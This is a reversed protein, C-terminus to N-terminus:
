EMANMKGMFLIAGTANDQICYYFPKDAIFQMVRPPEQPAASTAVMGIVTAAAAETGKENVIIKAKHLATGIKLDKEKRMGSFDAGNGFAQQLGLSTLYGKLEFTPTEFTFKPLHVNVQQWNLRNLLQAYKDATLAYNKMKRPLVIIMSTKDDAYPLELVQESSGDFARYGSQNRMMEVETTSGDLNNFDDKKTGKEQFPKKWDQKFYVANVLALKFKSVQTPTVMSPIMGKTSESIWANIKDASGEPDGSFNTARPPADFLEKMLKTYTPELKFGDLVWLSNSIEASKKLQKLEDLFASNDEKFGFVSEFEKQTQGNAGEYAM